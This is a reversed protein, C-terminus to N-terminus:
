ARNTYGLVDAVTEDLVTALMDPSTGERYAVHPKQPALADYVQMDVSIQDGIMTLSGAAVYDLGTKEAVRALVAPPPPWSGRYDVLKEAVQRSLLTLGKDRLIADMTKDVRPAIAEPDPANIKLPLFTTNQVAARAMTAPMASLLCLILVLTSAFRCSNKTTSQM